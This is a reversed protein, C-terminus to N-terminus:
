EGDVDEESEDEDGADSEVFSGGFFSVLNTALEPAELELKLEWKLYLRGGVGGTALTALILTSLGIVM